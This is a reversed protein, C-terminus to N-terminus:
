FWVADVPLSWPSNSGLNLVIVSVKREKHLPLFNHMINVMGHGQPGNIVSFLVALESSDYFQLSNQTALVLEM